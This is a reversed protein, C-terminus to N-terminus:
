DHVEDSHSDGPHSQQDGTQLHREPLRRRLRNRIALSIGALIAAAPVLAAKLLPDMAVVRDAASDTTDLLASTADSRGASESTPLDTAALTSTPSQPAAALPSDATATPLPIPAGVRLFRIRGDVQAAEVDIDGCGSENARLVHTLEQPQVEFLSICGYADILVPDTGAIVINRRAVIEPHTIETEPGACARYSGHPIRVRIAELLHLQAQIASPTSIDAIGQELNAHLLGPQQLFGMMHKLSMTLKTVNHTKAVALNIRVDAKTAANIVGIRQNARGYPM